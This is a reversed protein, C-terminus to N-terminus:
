ALAMMYAACCQQQQQESIIIFNTEIVDCKTMPTLSM